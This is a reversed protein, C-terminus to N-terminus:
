LKKLLNEPFRPNNMLLKMNIDALVVGFSFEQFPTIDSMIDVDEEEEEKKVVKNKKKRRRKIPETEEEEDPSSHKTRPVRRGRASTVLEERQRHRRAKRQKNDYETADYFNPKERKVRESRRKVGELAAGKFDGAMHNGSMAQGPSVEEYEGGAPDPSINTSSRRKDDFFSHNCGSCHRTAVPHQKKCQPCKKSVSKTVGKPPM